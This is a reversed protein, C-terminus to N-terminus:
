IVKLKCWSWRAAVKGTQWHLINLDLCQGSDGVSFFCNLTEAFGEKADIPMSFFTPGAVIYPAKPPKWDLAHLVGLKQATILKKRCIEFQKDNKAYTPSSLLLGAVIAILTKM